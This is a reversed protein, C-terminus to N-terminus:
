GPTRAGAEVCRAKGARKADYMAADAAALTADAGRGPRLRVIGISATVPPAGPFTRAAKTIREIIQEGVAVADYPVRSQMLVAFEDGGLRAVVDDVRM